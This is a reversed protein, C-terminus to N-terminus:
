RSPWKVQMPKWQNFWQILFTNLMPQFRTNRKCSISDLKAAKTLPQLMSVLCKHTMNHFVDILMVVYQAFLNGSAIICIHIHCTLRCGAHHASIPIWWCKAGTSNSRNSSGNANANKVCGRMKPRKWVGGGEAERGGGGHRWEGGRRRRRRRRGAQRGADEREQERQLTAIAVSFHPFVETRWRPLSISASLFLSLCVTLPYVSSVLRSSPTCFLSNILLSFSHSHTVSHVGNGTM